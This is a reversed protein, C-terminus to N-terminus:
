RGRVSDPGPWSPRADPFDRPREAVFTRSISSVAKEKRRGSDPLQRKAVWDLCLVAFPHIAPQAAPFGALGSISLSANTLSVRVEM